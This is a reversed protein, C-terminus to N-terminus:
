LSLDKVSRPKKRRALEESYVGGSVEKFLLTDATYKNYKETYMNFTFIYPKDKEIKLDDQLYFNIDEKAKVACKMVITYENEKASPANLVGIVQLEGVVNAKLYVHDKNYNVLWVESGTAHAPIGAVKPTPVLASQWDFAYISYTYYGEVMADYAMHGHALIASLIDRSVCVRPVSLVDNRGRKEPLRPTFNKINGDASLHLLPGDAETRHIVEVNQQVQKTQLQLWAELEDM